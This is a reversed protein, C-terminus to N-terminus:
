TGPCGTGRWMSLGGRKYVHRFAADQVWAPAHHAESYQRAVFKGDVKVWKAVGQWTGRIWQGAGRASSTPNAATYHGASISEHRRICLWVSREHHSAGKWVAYVNSDAYRGAGGRSPREVREERDSATVVGTPAPAAQAAAPLALSIMTATLAARITLNLYRV